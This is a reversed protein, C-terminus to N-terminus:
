DTEPEDSDPLICDRIHERDFKHTNGVTLIHRFLRQFRMTLVKSFHYSQPCEFPNEVEIGRNLIRIIEDQNEYIYVYQDLPNPFREPDYQLYKVVIEILNINLKIVPTTFPEVFLTKFYEKEVQYELDDSLEFIDFELIKRFDRRFVRSILERPMM